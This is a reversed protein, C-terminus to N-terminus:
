LLNKDLFCYNVIINNEYLFKTIYSDNIAETMVGNGNISIVLFMITLLILIIIASKLLGYAIGGMKNCQKIIPIEAIGEALFKLLTVLIRIGVFLLIGTLIEIARHSITNAVLQAAQAKAEDTTDQIQRAIYQQLNTTGDENEQTEDPEYNANNQLIIEEIKEDIETYNIIINAIPRYFIFTLIIAIFFACINFIVHILGRKYGLMVNFLIIAIIIVDMLIGM